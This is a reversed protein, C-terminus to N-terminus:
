IIRSDGKKTDNGHKKINDTIKQDPTKLREVLNVTEKELLKIKQEKTRLERKIRFRGPLALLSSVVAGFTVSLIIVLSLSSNIEKFWFSIKVPTNNELAFLVIILILLLLGIFTKQM